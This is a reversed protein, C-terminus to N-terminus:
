GFWGLWKHMLLGGYTVVIAIGVVISLLQDFVREGADPFRLSYSETAAYRELKPEDRERDLDFVYVVLFIIVSSILMAFLDVLLRVWGEADPPRTFLAVAITIGAFVVIGFMEGLALGIQKSHVLMDLDVEAQNLIERDSSNQPVAKAMYVRANAYAAQLESRNKAGDIGRIYELVDGSIVGSKVLIELKRYVSFIRAVEDNTRSISRTVRFALLFTFVTASVAIAEFYGSGAWNWISINFMNSFVSDRLYVIAGCTGLALLLSKFGFRIEADFNILLNATIVAVSGIVLYDARIVSIESFIWLWLLSLIPIGYNLSNVGLNNTILNSVRFLIGGSSHLIMGGVFGIALVSFQISEGLSFGIVLNPVIAFLNSIAYSLVTGLLILSTGNKNQANASSINEALSRGWELHFAGLSATLAALLALSVGKILDSISINTFAVGGTQSFIVFSLGVVAVMLLPFIAFINKRYKSERQFLWATLLIFLIPWLEFLINAVSIDIFRTAWAFLANEFSQITAFFITWSFISRVILSLVERNVLIQWYFVILTIFCGITLGFRWVSNFLFPSDVAGSRAIVLPIFSYALVSVLMYSAAPLNGQAKQEFSNTM